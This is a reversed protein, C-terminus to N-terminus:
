DTLLRQLSTSLCGSSGRCSVLLTCLVEIRLHKWLLFSIAWVCDSPCSTVNLEDLCASSMPRLTIANVLRALSTPRLIIVDILHALSTPRLITANVLHPGSCLSTANCFFCILSCALDRSKTVHWTMVGIQYLKIFIICYFVLNIRWVTFYITTLMSWNYNNYIIFICKQGVIFNLFYLCSNSHCKQM